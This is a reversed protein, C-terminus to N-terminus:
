SFRVFLVYLNERLKFSIIKYINYWARAKRELLLSGCGKTSRIIFNKRKRFLTGVARLATNNM